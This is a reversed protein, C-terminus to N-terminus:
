NKKRESKTYKRKVLKWERRCVWSNAVLMENELRGYIIYQDGKRIEIGKLLVRDTSIGKFQKEIKIKATHGSSHQTHKKPDSIIEIVCVSAASLYMELVKSPACDHEITTGKMSFSGLIALTIVLFTKNM